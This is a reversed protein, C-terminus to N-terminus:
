IDALLWVVGIVAVGATRWATANGERAESAIVILLFEVRAGAELEVAVRVGGLAGSVALVRDWLAALVGALGLVIAADAHVGLAALVVL